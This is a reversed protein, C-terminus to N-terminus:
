LFCALNNNRTNANYKGYGFRDSRTFAGVSYIDVPINGINNNSHILSRLLLIPM